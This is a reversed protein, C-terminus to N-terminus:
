GFVAAYTSFGWEAKIKILSFTRGRNILLWVGHAWLLYSIMLSLQESQLVVKLTKWLSAYHYYLGLPSADTQVSIGFSSYSHSSYPVCKYTLRAKWTSTFKVRFKIITEIPSLTVRLWEIHCPLLIKIVIATTSVLHRQSHGGKHYTM